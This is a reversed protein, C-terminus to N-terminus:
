KRKRKSSPNLAQIQRKIKKLQSEILRAEQLRKRIKENLPVSRANKPAADYLAGGIATFTEQARQNLRFLKFRLQGLEALRKAETTGKEAIRTAEVKFTSAGKEAMKRAERSIVSTQKKVQVVGQRIATNLDKRVNDWFGM